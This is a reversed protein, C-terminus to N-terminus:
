TKYCLRVLRGFNLTIKTNGRAGPRTRGFDKLNSSFAIRINNGDGETGIKDLVKEIANYEESGEEAEGLAANLQAVGERFKQRNEECASDNDKCESAWEYMGTPDTFRLPNNLTYAYRNWSQPLWPRGSNLLPDPSNFRGLSSGFYRAGFYDLGSEQDREKATFKQPFESQENYGPVNQRGNFAASAPIEQGFPFFDRRSVV